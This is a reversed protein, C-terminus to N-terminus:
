AGKKVGLKLWLDDSFKELPFPETLVRSKAM